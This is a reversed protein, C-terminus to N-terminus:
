RIARLQDAVGRGWADEFRPYVPAMAEQFAPRDSEVITMGRQRFDAVLSGEMDRFKQDNVVGGAAFSDNVIAKDADPLANYKEASMMCIQPTIIHGTLNLFRQVEYFKQAAITPLPNEQGDAVGTQLSLYVEALAMPTPTAGIARIMELFTPVAPVRIKLGRADAPVRVARDRTTLHRTGYYWAPGVMQMQRQTALTRFQARGWDSNIMKVLHDWDRSIFPAEFVTLTRVWSGLQGPGDLAFDLAGDSVQQDMEVGTGLQGAPFIQVHLRGNSRREIEEAVKLAGFHIPHDTPLQHGFRWTTGQARALSPAALAAAGAALAARRSIRRSM